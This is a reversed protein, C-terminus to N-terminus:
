WDVTYSLSVRTGEEPLYLFASNTAAAAVALYEENLLNEVGLTFVGPGADFTAAANILLEDAVGGEEFATSNGFPDRSGRYNFQLRNRWWPRPAFDVNGTVLLPTVDRSGIRRSDGPTVERMGDQWTLVGSVSWRENIRHDGTAEVGWFRRPERLPVCPNIGDCALASLLDSETYFLAASFNAGPSSGRVGFEYQNSKDPQPDIEAAASASRAARGLQSIESGQSFTFFAEHAVGIAYSVGANYLTLDFDGIDGGSVGGPGRATEVEGRYEEHRIGATLLVPGVPVDLQSYPAYSDLTVDPSFFSFVAGTAAFFAPRFYRNRQVDVGYTVATGATLFPLPTTVASRLGYYENDQEDRLNPFTPDGFNTIVEIRTDSTFLEVRVASGFVDANGYQLNVTYSERFSEDGDPQRSLSGFRQGLAGPQINFRTLADLHSYTAHLRLDGFQGLDYGVSTDLAGDLFEGNSLSQPTNFGLAREGGPDYEVGDYSFAGGVHYDFDGVIRSASQYLRTQYSGGPHVPNFSARLTSRLSLSTSHARPTSLAIIGGPAGFGYASNAGRGVAIGGIQEPNILNLDSGASARLAENTPVGNIFVQATRGRINRVGNNTPNFGPVLHALLDELRQTSSLERQVADRGVISISAPVNALARDARRSGLVTIEDDVARPSEDPTPQAQVPTAVFLGVTLTLAAVLAPNIRM